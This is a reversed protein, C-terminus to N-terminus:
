LIGLMALQLGQSTWAKVEAPQITPIHSPLTRMTDGDMLLVVQYLAIQGFSPWIRPVSQYCGVIRKERFFAVWTRKSIAAPVEEM